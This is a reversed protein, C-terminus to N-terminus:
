VHSTVLMIVKKYNFHLNIKRIKSQKVNEQQYIPFFPAFDSNRIRNKLNRVLRFCYSKSSQELHVAIFQVESQVVDGRCYCSIVFNSVAVLEPFRLSVSYGNPDLRVESNRNHSDFLFASDRGCHIVAVCLDTIFLISCNSERSHSFLRHSVIEQIRMLRYCKVTLISSQGSSTRQM